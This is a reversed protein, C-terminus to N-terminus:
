RANDQFLGTQESAMAITQVLRTTQAARSGDPDYMHPGIDFHFQVTTPSKVFARPEPHVLQALRRRSLAEGEAARRGGTRLAGVARVHPAEVEEDSARWLDSLLDEAVPAAPVRLFFNGGCSACRFAALRMM